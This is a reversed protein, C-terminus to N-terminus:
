SSQYRLASAYPLWGRAAPQVQGAEGLGKVGGPCPCPSPKSFARFGDPFEGSSEACQSSPIRLFSPRDVFFLLRRRSQRTAGTSALVYPSKRVGEAQREAPRIKHGHGASPQCAHCARQCTRSSRCGPPLSVARCSIFPLLGAIMGVVAGLLRQGCGDIPAVQAHQLTKQGHEFIRIRIRRVLLM